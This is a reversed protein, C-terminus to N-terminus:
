ERCLRCWITDELLFPGQFTPQLLGTSLPRHLFTPAFYSCSQSHPSISIFSTLNGLQWDVPTPIQVLVMKYSGHLLHSPSGWRMFDAQSARYIRFYLNLRSMQNKWQKNFWNLFNPCVFLTKIDRLQWQIGRMWRETSWASCMKTKLLFFCIVIFM